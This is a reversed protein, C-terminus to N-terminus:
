LLRCNKTNWPREVDDINNGRFARWCQKNHFAALRHRHAVTKVSYLNNSICPAEYFASKKKREYNV